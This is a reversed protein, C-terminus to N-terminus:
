KGHSVGLVAGDRRRIRASPVGGVAGRPLSGTIFWVGNKLRVKMPLHGSYAEPGFIPDWIARAIRIATKQKPVFGGEPTYPAAGDTEPTAETPPSGSTTSEHGPKRGAATQKSTGEIPSSTKLALGLSEKYRDVARDVIPKSESSSEDSLQKGRRTFVPQDNQEDHSKLELDLNRRYQDIAQDVRSGSRNDADVSQGM